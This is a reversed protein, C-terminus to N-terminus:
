SLSLDLGTLCPWQAGEASNDECMKIITLLILDFVKTIFFFSWGFQHYTMAMVVLSVHIIRSISSALKSSSLHVFNQSAVRMNEESNPLCWNTCCTKFAHDWEFLEAYQNMIHNLAPAANIQQTIICSQRKCHQKLYVNLRTTFRGAWNIAQRRAVSHTVELTVRCMLPLM